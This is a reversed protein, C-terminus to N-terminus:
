DSMKKLIAAVSEVSVLSPSRRTSRKCPLLAKGRVTPFYLHATTHYNNPRPKYGRGPQRRLSGKRSGFYKSIRQLFSRSLEQAPKSLRDLYCIGIRLEECPIVLGVNLIQMVM